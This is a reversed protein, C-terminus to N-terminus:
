ETPDNTTPNLRELQILLDVFHKVKELDKLGGKSRWRTIYKVVSGEIFPLKNAHIYEVPQIKLDKYHSGAVQVNLATPGKNYGAPIHEMETVSKDLATPNDRINAISEMYERRQELNLNFFVEENTPHIKPNM